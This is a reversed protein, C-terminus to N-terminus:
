KINKVYEDYVKKIENKYKSYNDIFDKAEDSDRFLVFIATSSEDFFILFSSKINTYHYIYFGPVNFPGKWSVEMIYINNFSKTPKQECVLDYSLDKFNLNDLHHLNITCCKFLDGKKIDDLSICSLSNKIKTDKNLKLRENIKESFIKM